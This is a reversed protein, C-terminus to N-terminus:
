SVRSIGQSFRKLYLSDAIETSCSSSVETCCMNDPSLFSERDEVSSTLWNEVLVELPAKRCLYAHSLSETNEAELPISGSIGQSLVLGAKGATCLHLSM